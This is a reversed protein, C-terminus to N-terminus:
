TTLKIARVPRMIASIDTTTSRMEEFVIDDDLYATGNINATVPFEGYIRLKQTKEETYRYIVDAKGDQLDERFLLERKESQNKNKRYERNKAVKRKNRSGHHIEAKIAIYLISSQVPKEFISFIPCRDSFSPLIHLVRERFVRLIQM